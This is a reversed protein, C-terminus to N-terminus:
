VAAWVLQLLSQKMDPLLLLLVYCMYLILSVRTALALATSCVLCRCYFTAIHM